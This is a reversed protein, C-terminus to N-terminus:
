QKDGLECPEGSLYEYAYRVSDELHRSWNEVPFDEQLNTLVSTLLRELTEIRKADDLTKYSIEM